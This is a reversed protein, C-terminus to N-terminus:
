KFLGKLGKKLEDRARSKAKEKLAEKKENIKQKAMDTLLAGYDVRIKLADFPGSVNVPLTATGGQDTKAFIAKATYNMSDRGIDIDGRGTVRLITSKVVLDDNHAVGNTVNFSAKFESFVTKENPNVGMTEPRSDKNLRQIGQVLKALNIGKIAGDALNVSVKGQLSQKLAGVTLGNAKLAIGVDGRGEAIDKDLADKLLPAIDVGALREDVTFTSANADIVVKGAMKGQYLNASFPVITAVGDKAKIDVRLKSVNINAAKLSGLRLSGELNLSKLFSLDFPQEAAVSEPKTATSKPLYPDADFQDIELDYRIRPAKFSNVAAKAKIQSQLLKGAFNAQVSQRKLDAQISGKLEGKVSSGPLQDGIANLAIKTDPLNYQQTELNGNATAEIKLNYAQTPQKIGVKLSLGNLKFKELNSEVSSISLAADLKGFAGNLKGNLVLGSGSLKDKLLSAVPLELRAEFPESGSNGSAALTLKKVSFAQAALQIEVDGGAKLALDTIDLANGNVQLDMERLQYRNQELDILLTGKLRTGVDLKPKSLQVHATFDINSPVANAIRGTSLSMDSVRYQTGAGEDRYILETNDIRVAAVAFKVPANTQLAEAPGESASKKGMLDDLNLTGNKYKVVRLKVGSLAVQDIVVQKALLPWLALSVNASEVSAFERKSQFESLSVAGLHAGISPFFTLKIDGDLKLTRQTADKVAQMIEPKYANPDFTLVVYALAGSVLLVLGGLLWLGYKLYTNM